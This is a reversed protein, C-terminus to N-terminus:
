ARDVEESADPEPNLLRADHAALWRDFAAAHEAEKGDPAMWEIHERMEADTPIYEAV